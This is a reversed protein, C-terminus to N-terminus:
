SGASGWTIRAQAASMAYSRDGAFTAVVTREKGHNPVVLTTSAIGAEGTMATAVITGIEFRITRGALTKGATDAETLKAAVTVTEGRASTQGVYSIASDEHLVTVARATNAATHRATEAVAATLTAPGADENVTLVADARGAADTVADATAAGLAFTVTRGSLAAGRADTVIARVPLADTTQVSDPASVTLATALRQVTLDRRATSMAYRSDGAFTATVLAPGADHDVVLTATATGTASTTATASGTGLGFTVVRDKLPQGGVDSLSATVTISDSVTATTPATLQLRTANVYHALRPEATGYRAGLAVGGDENLFQDEYAASNWGTSATTFSAQTCPDPTGVPRNRTREVSAPGVNRLADLALAHAVADGALGLHDVTRWTCFGGVSQVSMSAVNPHAEDDLIANKTPQVFEDQQTWISTYSVDGPTDDWSNLAAIFASDGTSDAKDDGKMQHCAECTYGSVTNRAVTTGKHPTGLTIMDDVKDRVDPWWRLAWRPSLGGQSHGIVSIKKGSQAHMTRIAHVVYEASVQIDNLSRQPLDVTCVRHGRNALDPQYGWSWNEAATVGTGHVLLVWPLSANTRNTAPLCEFADVIAQDRTLLEELIDAVALMGTLNPHIPAAANAPVIPEVWRIAPADCATHGASPSYVDVYRVGQAAAQEAIMQNLAEQVGRLYLADGEGVLMAPCGAIAGFAFIGSYGLVLVKAQPSREKIGAITAAVKPAAAAIRDRLDDIGNGKIGGRNDGDDAIHPDRCTGGKQAQALCDQAISGFGIDNGGIQLTVLDVDKDLADFQPPVGKGNFQEEPSVGQWGKMDGTDAGSCTVDRLAYGLRSALHKAYNNTSRLCGSPLSRSERSAEQVPIAPGAAFSDGLAVYTPPKTEDEAAVPTSTAPLVVVGAAMLAAVFLAIRRPM